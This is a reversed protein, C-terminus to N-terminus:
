APQDPRTVISQIIPDSVLGIIMIELLSVVQNLLPRRSPDSRRGTRGQCSSALNERDRGPRDIALAIEEYPLGQEHFLVFVM